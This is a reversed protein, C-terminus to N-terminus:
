ARRSTRRAQAFLLLRKAAPRLEKLDGQVDHPQLDYFSRVAEASNIAREAALWAVLYIACDTASVKAAGRGRGTSPLLGAERLHRARVTGEESRCGTMKSFFDVLESVRPM